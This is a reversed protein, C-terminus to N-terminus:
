HKHTLDQTQMLPQSELKSTFHEFNSCITMTIVTKLRLGLGM